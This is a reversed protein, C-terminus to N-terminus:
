NDSNMSNQGQIDGSNMHYGKMHQEDGTFSCTVNPLSKQGGGMELMAPIAEHKTNTLHSTKNKTSFSTSSNYELQFQKRKPNRM